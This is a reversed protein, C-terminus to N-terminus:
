DVSEVSLSNIYLSEIDMYTQKSKVLGGEFEITDIAEIEYAKGSPIFRKGGIIFPETPAAKLIFRVTISDDAFYIDQVTSEYDPAIVFVNEFARKIEDKGTAPPEGLFHLQYVSDEKHLALIKDIDRSEWAESYRKADPGVSLKNVMECGSIAVFAVSLTVFRLFCKM